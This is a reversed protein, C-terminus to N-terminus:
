LLRPKDRFLFDVPMARRVSSRPLVASDTWQVTADLPADDLGRGCQRSFPHDAANETGCYPCTTMLRIAPRSSPLRRPPPRAGAAAAPYTVTGAPRGPRLSM